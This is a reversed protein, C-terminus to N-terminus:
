QCRSYHFPDPSADDGFEQRILTEGGDEVNLVVDRQWTMGEGMFDFAGRLHTSSTEEISALTGVSEYFKLTTADITLLGKADSRGPECDAAVMGWRGQISAPIETTAPTPTAPAATETSEGAPTGTDSSTGSDGCAALILLAPLTLFLARM